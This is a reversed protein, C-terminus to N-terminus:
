VERYIYNSLEQWNNNIELALFDSEVLYLNEMGSLDEELAEVESNILQVLKTDNLSRKMIFDPTMFVVVIVVAATLLSFMKRRFHIIEATHAKKYLTEFDLEAPPDTEKMRLRSVSKILDQYEALEREQIKDDPEM